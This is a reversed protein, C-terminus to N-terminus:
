LGADVFRSIILDEATRLRYQITSRPEGLEDALDAVTVERPRAYYGHEVAAELAQWHAPSLEAAIRSEADWNGVRSLHAVELHLGDRLISEIEDYLVGIPQDGLYLIRWRYEGDSRRSDFVVGDGVHEIVHHPISHCRHVEKRYTYITRANPKRDLVHYARRTECNPVDLCENCRNEDLFVRDFAELAAESGRAHDIRWMTERTSFCVSSRTTLSPYEYFLDMLEDVGRDFRVVFEFERLEDATLPSDIM